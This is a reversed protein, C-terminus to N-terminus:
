TGNALRLGLIGRLAGADVFIEIESAARLKAAWDEIAAQRKLGSVKRAIDGRVEEYPRPAPAIVQRVCLVYFPGPPEEAAFRCDGAAAGALAERFGDPLTATVLLGGTFEFFTEYSERSAQGGANARMWKLDAGRRLRDLAAGADERRTFALGEIRMMGPSSYEALRGDYHSRLEAEDMRIEANIVKTLFAGFLLGDAQERLDERFDGAREIKLRKAELDTAREMLIRDLLGRLEANVRKREIAEELGHYFHSAVRGTPDKVTVADGGRVRAVTRTDRRLAELGPSDSEYDLGDFVERVIQTYRNRLGDAYKQLAEDRRIALAKERAGRRAAADEPYRVELLKVVAFDAGLPLPASLQGPKMAALPQAAAPRLEAMRISRPGEGGSAKGAAVARAAAAAFDGKARVEAEFARADEEKEFLVSDVLLERVEDKFLREAVAPDGETIGGVQRTVLAKKVLSARASKLQEFFEQTQDLGIRRAEQLILRANVIRDLVSSPDAQRVMAEPEAVGAHLAEIHRFLDEVTVPEGNVSAVAEKGDIRPLEARQSPAAGVAPIAAGCLVLAGLRRRMM